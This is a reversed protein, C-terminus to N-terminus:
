RPARGDGTPPPPAARRATIEEPEVDDHEAPELLGLHQPRVAVRRGAATELVLAGDRACDVARGAVTPGAPGLPILRARVEHGFTACRRRYDTLVDDSSTARRADIASLIAALLRGRETPTGRRVALNQVAPVLINAVAWTVISPGAPGPGLEAYVGVAALRGDSGHVEDPWHIRADAGLVDALASTVVTYLWGEEEASLEPRLLLSFALDTGARVRWELGSRGRPSMQYDAIVLGGDPGGARGWAQADAETSLVAPYVRLMRGGLLPALTRPQLDEPIGPRGAGVAV